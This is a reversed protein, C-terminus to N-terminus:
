LMTIKFYSFLIQTLWVHETNNKLALIVRAPPQAIAPIASTFARGPPNVSLWLNNPQQLITALKAVLHCLRQNGSKSDRSLPM